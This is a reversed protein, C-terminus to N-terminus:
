YRPNIDLKSLIAAQANQPNLWIFEPDKRFWTLQRKAYNRTHQRINAVAEDLSCKGELYEFLEVYGVTQLNKLNRQPYLTRVEDLLGQKMMQDVRQEIRLYLEPRPLDLVFKIIRFPREKKRGTRFRVISVGTSRKFVLARLLRAPNQVEGSSFFEPDEQRVAHQLWELGQTAYHDTVEKEIAPNVPPMEDLGECVAKIYLGTGGTLVAFNNREFIQNIYELALHEYDAATINKTVPFEDIFYHKVESLEESSPKATGITMERYCQRSDASVIRTNLAKALEIAVATKGVATPGAIVVLTKPM